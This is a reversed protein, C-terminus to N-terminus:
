IEILLVSHVSISLGDILTILGETEDIKKIYGSVTVYAGGTKFQDPRFYTIDVPMKHDLAYVLRRSLRDKEENTLEIKESTLRATEAIADNHGTLASFPAFQAARNSMFMRKHHPEYHPLNIIDDYRNMTDELRVTGTESHLEM